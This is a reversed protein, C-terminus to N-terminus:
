SKRVFEQHCSPCTICIKGRGRPVRVKQGCHPCQFYRHIKQDAMRTQLGSLNNRVQGWWQIFRLNEGQRRLIQRSLARYVCLLLLATSLFDLLRWRTLITLLSLALAAGILARSLQDFGYRGMMFRQIRERM